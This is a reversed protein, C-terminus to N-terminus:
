FVIRYVELVAAVVSALLSTAVFRTLAKAGLYPGISRLIYTVPTIVLSVPEPFKVMSITVVILALPKIVIRVSFAQVNLCVASAILTVPFVVFLVSVTYLGPSVIAIKFAGINIALLFASTEHM